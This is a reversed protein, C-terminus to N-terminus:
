KTVRKGRPKVKALPQAKANSDEANGKRKRYARMRCADSCYARSARTNGSGIEFATGCEVCAHYDKAARNGHIDMAFQLWLAGLLGHPRLRWVLRGHNWLLCPSANGNLADNVWVQVFRMAARTLDGRAVAEPKGELGIESRELRRFRQWTKENREFVVSGNEWKLFKGLAHTSQKGTCTADWLEVACQLNVIARRWDDLSEGFNQPAHDILKKTAGGLAGYRGAFKLITKETPALDKFVRYLDAYKLPECYTATGSEPLVLFREPKRSLGSPMERASVWQFGTTPIPWPFSIM